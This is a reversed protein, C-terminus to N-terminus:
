RRGRRINRAQINLGELTLRPLIVAHEILSAFAEIGITSLSFTSPKSDPASPVCSDAINQIFIECLIGIIRTVVRFHPIM